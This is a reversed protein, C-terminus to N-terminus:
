ISIMIPVNPENEAAIPGTSDILIRSSSRGSVRRIKKTGKM